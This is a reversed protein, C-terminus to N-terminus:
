GNGTSGPADALQLAPRMEVLAGAPLGSDRVADAFTRVRGSLGDIDIGMLTDHAGPACDALRDAVEQLLRLTANRQGMALKLCANALQILAVMLHRERSSPRTALWVPEWVEHAEWFYGSAYLEVGYLYAPVERWIEARMSRPTGAKVRDLPPRDPESGSGPIHRRSPLPFPM